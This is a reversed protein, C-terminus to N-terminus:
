WPVIARDEWLLGTLATDSVNVQAHRQALDSTALWVITEAGEQASRAADPGGMNTRCHNPCM